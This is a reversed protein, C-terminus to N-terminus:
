GGELAGSFAIGSVLLIPTAVFCLAEGIQYPLSEAPHVISNALFLGSLIFFVPALAAMVVGVRKTLKGYKKGTFLLRLMVVTLVISIIMWLPIPLRDRTSHDDEEATKILMRGNYSLSTESSFGISLTWNYEGPTANIPITFPLEVTTTGSTPLCLISYQSSPIMHFVAIGSIELDVNTVIDEATPKFTLQLTGNEGPMYSTKNFEYSVRVSNAAEISSVLLLTLFVPILILLLRSLTDTKRM